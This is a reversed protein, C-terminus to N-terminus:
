SQKKDSQSEYTMKIGNTSTLTYTMNVKLNGPYGGEGDPSNYSFILTSDNPQTADWVKGYFGSKGGHLTNISDNLELAYEQSNEKEL